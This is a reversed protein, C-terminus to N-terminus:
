AAMILLGLIYITRRAPYVSVEHEYKDIYEQLTHMDAHEVCLQVLLEFDRFSDALSIARSSGSGDEEVSCLYM